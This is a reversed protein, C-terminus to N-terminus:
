AESVIERMECVEYEAGHFYAVFVGPRIEVPEALFRVGEDVLREYTIWFDQVIFGIHTLGYDSQQRDPRPERGPPHDYNFLEVVSDGLKMHVIRVKTGEVGILRAMPTDFHRDFVKEMGIVDRYFAVSKEMDKVSIAVHDARTFM